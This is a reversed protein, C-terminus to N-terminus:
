KKLRQGTEAHRAGPASSHILEHFPVFPHPGPAGRGEGLLSFESPGPPRSLSLSEPIVNHALRYRFRELALSALATIVKALTPFPPM